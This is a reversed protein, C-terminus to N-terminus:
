NHDKELKIKKRLLNLSVIQIIMNWKSFKIPICGLEM